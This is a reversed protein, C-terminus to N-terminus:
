GARRRAAESRLFPEVRLLPEALGEYPRLGLRDALLWEVEYAYLLSSGASEVLRALRVSGKPSFRVYRPRRGLARFMEDTLDRYRWRFPGGGTVNRRDALSSERRLIRALDSAAIPSVHYTGDGFMPFLRYRRMTRMMVTLLKDRPAFLMTPRVISYSLRSAEIARDVRRKHVFYPYRRELEAPADPVSVHLFRRVGVEEAASVLRILGDALPRFRRDNGSRYWAVNLVLDVRDLIPRWDPVTAADGPVWEVGSAAESPEPYRHLSRISWDRHFEALVHRGVLGGAGGVLLLRPRDMASNM